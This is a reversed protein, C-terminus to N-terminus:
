PIFKHKKYIMLVILLIFSVISCVLGEFLGAPIYRMDIKHVGKSIPFSMMANFMKQPVVRNNDVYVHWNKDYPITLFM